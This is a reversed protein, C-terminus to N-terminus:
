PDSIHQHHPVPPLYFSSFASSSLNLSVQLSYPISILTLFVFTITIFPDPLILCTFNFLTGRSCTVRKLYKPLQIVSSALLSSSIFALTPNALAANQCFSNILLFM